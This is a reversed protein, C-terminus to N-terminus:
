EREDSAEKLVLRAFRIFPRVSQTRLWAELGENMDLGRGPPTYVMRWLEELRADTM